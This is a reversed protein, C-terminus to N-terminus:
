VVKDGGRLAAVDQRQELAQRRGLQREVEVQHRVKRAVANGTRRRHRAQGVGVEARQVALRRRQDRAQGTLRQLAGARRLAALEPQEERAHVQRRTGVGGVLLVRAPRAPPARRRLLHAREEILPPARQEVRLQRELRAVAEGLQRA